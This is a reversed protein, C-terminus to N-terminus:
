PTSGSSASGQPPSYESIVCPVAATRVACPGQPEEQSFFVVWAEPIGGISEISEYRAIMWRGWGRDM